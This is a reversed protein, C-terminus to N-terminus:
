IKIAKSLVTTVVTSTVLQAYVKVSTFADEFAVVSAQGATIVYDSLGPIPTDWLTGNDVSGRMRVNIDNAGTNSVHIPRIERFNIGDYMGATFTIPTILCTSSALIEFWEGFGGPATGTLVIRGGADTALVIGLMANISAVIGARTTNAGIAGVITEDCIQYAGALPDAAGGITVTTATNATITQPNLGAVDVLIHGILDGPAPSPTWAKTTDELIYPPGAPIAGGGGSTDTSNGFDLVNCLQLHNTVGSMVAIDLERNSNNNAFRIPEVIVATQTLSGSLTFTVPADYAPTATGPVTVVGCGADLKIPLVNLNTIDNYTAPNTSGFMTISDGRRLAANIARINVSLDKADIEVGDIDIFPIGVM